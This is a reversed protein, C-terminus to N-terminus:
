PGPGTSGGDDTLPRFEGGAARRPAGRAPRAQGCSASGSLGRRLRAPLGHGRRPCTATPPARSHGHGAPGLLALPFSRSDYYGAVLRRAGGRRWSRSPSAARQLHYGAALGAQGAGRRARRPRRARHSARPAEQRKLLLWRGREAERSRSCAIPPRALLEGLPRGTSSYFAWKRAEGRAGAGRGQAEEHPLLGEVPGHRLAGEFECVCIGEEREAPVGSDSFDCCSRGDAMM